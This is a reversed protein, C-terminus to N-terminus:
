NWRSYKKFDCCKYPKENLTCCRINELQTKDLWVSTVFFVNRMVSRNHKYFSLFNNNKNLEHKILLVIENFYKQCAGKKGKM